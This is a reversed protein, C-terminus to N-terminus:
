GPSDMNTPDNKEPTKPFDKRPPSKDLKLPINPAWKLWSSHAKEHLQFIWGNKVPKGMAEGEPTAFAVGGTLLAEMSETKLGKFLGFDMGSVNYFVSNEYVLPFYKKFITANINVADGSSALEYGTVEGVQVQRYYVPSGVKLSGRREGQLIIDLHGPDAIKTPAQRLAVFNRTPKGKFDPLVDIYTGAVLTELGTVETLSVKPSVLWFKTGERLARNILPDMVVTATVGSLDPMIQLREVLGIDMGKFRVKTNKPNLGQGTKFLISINIGSKAAKYDDYLAFRDMNEALSTNESHDPTDFAIGGKLMATFSETRIDLDAISGSIHVGSANWFRSGKTVLAQYEPRIHIGIEFFQKNEAIALFQVSGVQHRRYYVPSGNEISPQESATLILHLGPDKEDLPPPGDLGEFNSAPPGDGPRMAIYNGTVITELGTIGNM